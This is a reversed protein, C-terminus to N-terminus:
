RFGYRRRAIDTPDSTMDDIYTKGDFLYDFATCYGYKEWPCDETTYYRKSDVIASDLVEASVLLAERDLIRKFIRFSKDFRSTSLKRIESSNPDCALTSQEPKCAVLAKRVEDMRTYFASSFIRPALVVRSAESEPLGWRALFSVSPDSSMKDSIGGVNYIYDYVLASNGNFLPAKLEQELRILFPDAPSIGAVISLFEDRKERLRRDKSPTSLDDYMTSQPDCSQLHCHFYGQVTVDVRYYLLGWIAMALSRAKDVPAVFLKLKDIMMEEFKSSDLDSSAFQDLSYGPMKRSERLKWNGRILEPWRWKLFGGEGEKLGKLRPIDLYSVDRPPLNGYLVTICESPECFKHLGVHNIVQTHHSGPSIDLHVTGPTLFDRGIQIPYLDRIISKTYTNSLLYEVGAKFRESKRWSADTKLRDWDKRGSFHGFPKGSGSLTNMAPLGHDHAYAWRVLLAFDACDFDIGEGKFYTETVNAVYWDSFAKEDAATWASKKLNWLPFSSKTMLSDREFDFDKPRQALDGLTSYYDVSALLERQKALTFYRREIVVQSTLDNTLTSQPTEVVLLLNRDELEDVIIWRLWTKGLSDQYQVLTESNVEPSRNAPNAHVSTAFILHM